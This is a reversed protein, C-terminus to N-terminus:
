AFRGGNLMGLGAGLLLAVPVGVTQAVRITVWWAAQRDTCEEPETPLSLCPTAM